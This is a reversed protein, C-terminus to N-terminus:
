EIASKIWVTTGYTSFMVRTTDTDLTVDEPSALDVKISGSNNRRRTMGGGWNSLTWHYTEGEKDTNTAATEQTVENEKDLGTEISVSSQSAVSDFSSDGGGGRYRSVCETAMEGPSEEIARLINQCLESDLPIPDESDRNHITVAIHAPHPIPLPIVLKEASYPHIQRKWPQWRGESSNDNTITRRRIKTSTLLGSTDSCPIVNENLVKSLKAVYRNILIILM